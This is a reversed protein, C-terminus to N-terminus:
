ALLSEPLEFNTTRRFSDILLARVSHLIVGTALSIIGVLCLLVSILAYGVALEPSSQYSNLVWFGLASGVLLILLGSTGFFLLPRM